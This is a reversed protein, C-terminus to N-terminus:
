SPRDDWVAQRACRREVVRGGHRVGSLSLRIASAWNDRSRRLASVAGFYTRRRCRRGEMAKLDRRPRPQRNAWSTREAQRAGHPAVRGLTDGVARAGTTGHAAQKILSKLYRASWEVLCLSVEYESGRASSSNVSPGEAMSLPLNRSTVTSSTLVDLRSDVERAACTAYLRANPREPVRM